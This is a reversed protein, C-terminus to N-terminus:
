HLFAYTVSHSVPHMFHLCLNSGERTFQLAVICQGKTRVIEYNLLAPISPSNVNFHM